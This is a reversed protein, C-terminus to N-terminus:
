LSLEDVMVLQMFIAIFSTCVHTYTVFTQDYGKEDIGSVHGLQGVSVFCPKRMNKM